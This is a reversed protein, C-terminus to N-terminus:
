SPETGIQMVLERLYLAQRFEPDIKEIKKLVKLSHKYRELSFLTLARNYLAAINRPYDRAVKEFYELAKEEEGMLYFANGIRLYIEPRQITIFGDKDCIEILQDATIIIETEKDNLIINTNMELQIPIQLSTLSSSLTSIVDQRNRDYLQASKLLLLARSLEKKRTDDTYFKKNELKDDRCDGYVGDDITYGCTDCRDDSIKGSCLPCDCM